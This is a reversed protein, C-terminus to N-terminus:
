LVDFVWGESLDKWAPNDLEILAIKRKRNGKKLQKERALAEVVDSYEELYVLFDCNYRSTFGTYVKNKHQYIRKVIDSTVGIYLVTRNKNTLIYIHYKKM